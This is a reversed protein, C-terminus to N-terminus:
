DAAPAGAAKGGDRRTALTVGEADLSRALDLVAVISEYAVQRDGRIVVRRPEASALASEIAPRADDVSGFVKGGVEIRGGTGITVEVPGASQSTATGASPLTVPLGTGERFTTSVTFFIILLFVVDVLPSLDITPRSRKAQLFRM